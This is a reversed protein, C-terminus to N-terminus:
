APLATAGSVAPGSEDARVAPAHSTFSDFAATAAGSTWVSADGAERVGFLPTAMAVSDAVMPLLNMVDASTVGDLHADALVRDPDAAYRAAADSDRVLSMVFDLLENAMDRKRAPPRYDRCHNPEVCM